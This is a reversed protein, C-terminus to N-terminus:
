LILILGTFRNDPTESVKITVDGGTTISINVNIAEYNGSVLEYVSVNPNSGKGHTAATVTHTYEPSNSTWDSTNNFTAFYREAPGSPSGGGGSSGVFDLNGTLPNFKFGAL